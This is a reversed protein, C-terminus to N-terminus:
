SSKKPGFVMHGLRYLIIVTMVGAVLLSSPPYPSNVLGAPGKPDKTIWQIWGEYKLLTIHLFIFAFGIRGGWNQLQKWKPFGLKLVQSDRSIYALGVWGLGALIGFGVPLWERQYYSPTFRQSLFFVLLTVHLLAFGFALLGLPRRFGILSKWEPKYSLAPGVMLTLGALIAAVAGAIKNLYFTDIQPSRLRFYGLVLGLVVVAVVSSELWRSHHAPKEKSIALKSSTPM